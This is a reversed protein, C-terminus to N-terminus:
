SYCVVFCKGSLLMLKGLTCSRAMAAHKMHGTVENWKEQKFIPLWLAEFITACKNTFLKCFNWFRVTEDIEWRSPSILSTHYLSQFILRYLGPCTLAHKQQIVSFDLIMWSLIEKWSPLKQTSKKWLHLNTM